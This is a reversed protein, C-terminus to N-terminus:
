KTTDWYKLDSYSRSRQPTANTLVLSPDLNTGDRLVNWGAVLGVQTQIAAPDSGCYAQAAATIIADGDTAQLVYRNLIAAVIQQLLKIRNQDLTSRKANTTTQNNSAWFAGMVSDTGPIPNSSLDLSVTKIDATKAPAIAWPTVSGDHAKAFTASFTTTTTSTVVVTEQSTGSDVLLATGVTIGVM